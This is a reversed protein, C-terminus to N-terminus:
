RGKIQYSDETYEMLEFKNGEPDHMWMQWAKDVGLTIEGDIYEAGGRDIIAQRFDRLNEVEM